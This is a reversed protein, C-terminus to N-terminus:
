KKVLKKVNRAFAKRMREMALPMSGDLAPRMFPFARSGPHEYSSIVSGNVSMKGKVTHPRVGFEILHAHSTGASVTYRVESSSMPKVKVAKIRDRLHKKGPKDKGVRVLAKARRVIVNAAALTGSKLVKNLVKVPLTQLAKKLKEWDISVKKRAM